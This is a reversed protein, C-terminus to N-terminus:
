KVGRVIMILSVDTDWQPRRSRYLQIRQDYRRNIQARMGTLEQASALGPAARSLSDVADLDNQRNAKIMALGRDLPTEPNDPTLNVALYSASVQRFGAQAMAAPLERENMWYQGVVPRQGSTQFFQDARNWIERELPSQEATCPAALHVGRRSSLVLCVGDPQLVRRQEGFFKEPPLHEQVTNSITADFSGEEFPLATADAELFRIHPAQQAAFRIFAADLDVGTIQADSYWRALSQALAGPGCGVELIKKTESGLGFAAQYQARYEDSFRLLRSLYLTGVGQVCDSWTTDAM